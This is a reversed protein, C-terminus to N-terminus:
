DDNVKDGTKTKHPIGSNIAYAKYQKCTKKWLNM